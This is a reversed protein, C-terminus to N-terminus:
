LNVKFIVELPVLLGGLCEFKEKLFSLPCLLGSFRGYGGGQEDSWNLEYYLIDKFIIKVCWIKHGSNILAITLLICRIRGPSIIKLWISNYRIKYLKVFNRGLTNYAINMQKCPYIPLTKKETIFHLSSHAWAWYGKFENNEFPFLEHNKRKKLSRIHIVSICNCLM